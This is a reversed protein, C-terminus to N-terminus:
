AETQRSLIGWRRSASSGLSDMSAARVALCHPTTKLRGAPATSVEMTLKVRFAVSAAAMAMSAVVAVDVVFEALMSIVTAATTGKGRQRGAPCSSIQDAPCCRGDVVTSAFALDIDM